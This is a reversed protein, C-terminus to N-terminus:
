DHRESEKNLHQAVILYINGEITHWKDPESMGILLCDEMCVVYYVFPLKLLEQVVAQVQPYGETPVCEGRGNGSYVVQFKWPHKVQLAKHYCSTTELLKM